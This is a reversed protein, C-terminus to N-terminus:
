AALNKLFEDAERQLQSLNEDVDSATRASAGLEDFIRAVFENIREIADSTSAASLATEDVSAAIQTVTRGQEAVTANLRGALDQVNRFTELISKNADVSDLSARGIDSLQAAIDDTAKTAQEALAKVESAVVAFARGSDGARAAEITANLALIGIQGAIDQISRVIHEISQSHQSLEEATRSAEGATESAGSLLSSANTIESEIESVASILKGSIAAADSMATASQRSATAVESASVQLERASEEAASSQKSAEHSKEGAAALASAIAHQFADAQTRTRRAHEQERCAQITSMLIEQELATVRMFQEVLHRGDAPDDAAAFIIEASRRHSLNLAGASLYSATGMRYQLQGMKVVRSIWAADIPPTYKNESYKATKHVQEAMAEPSIEIGANALFTTLYTTALEQAHPRLMDSIRVFAADSRASLGFAQLRETAQAEIDKEFDAM